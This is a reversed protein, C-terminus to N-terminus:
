KRFIDLLGTEAVFDLSEKWKEMVTAYNYPLKLAHIQTKWSLELVPTGEGEM